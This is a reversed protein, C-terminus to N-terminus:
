EERRQWTQVEARSRSICKSSIRVERSEIQTQIEEEAEASGTKVNRFYLFGKKARHDFVCVWM